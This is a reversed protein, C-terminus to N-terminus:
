SRCRPAGCDVVCECVRWHWAPQNSALYRCRACHYRLGYELERIRLRTLEAKHELRRVASTLALEQAEIVERVEGSTIASFERLLKALQVAVVAVDGEPYGTLDDERPTTM